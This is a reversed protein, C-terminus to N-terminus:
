NDFDAYRLAARCKMEHPMGGILFATVYAIEQYQSKLVHGVLHNAVGERKRLRESEWYAMIAAHVLPWMINKNENWFANFSLAHMMRSQVMVLDDITVPKDKDVLDDLQHFYEFLSCLFVHADANDCTVLRL